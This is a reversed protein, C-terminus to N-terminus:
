CAAHHKLADRRFRKHPSIGGHRNRFNGSCGHLGSDYRQHHAHFRIETLRHSTISTHELDRAGLTDDEVAVQPSADPDPNM